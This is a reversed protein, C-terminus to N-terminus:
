LKCVSMETESKLIDRSLEKREEWYCVVVLDMLIVIVAIALM